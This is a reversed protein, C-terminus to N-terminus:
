VAANSKAPLRHWHFVGFLMVGLRSRWPTPSRRIRGNLLLVELGHVILLGVGALNLLVDFPYAFPKVLNAIVVLWFLLSILKGLFILLSSM